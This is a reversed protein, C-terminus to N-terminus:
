SLFVMEQFQVGAYILCFKGIKVDDSPPPGGMNNLSSTLLLYFSRWRSKNILKTIKTKLLYFAYQIVTNTLPLEFTPWSGKDLESESSLSVKLFSNSTKM